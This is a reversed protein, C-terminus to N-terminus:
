VLVRVGKEAAWRVTRESLTLEKGPDAAREIWAIEVPGGVWAAVSVGLWYHDSSNLGVFDTLTGKVVRFVIGGGAHGAGQLCRGDLKEIWRWLAANKGVSLVQDM